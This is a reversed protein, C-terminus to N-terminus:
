GHRHVHGPEPTTGCEPCIGMAEISRRADDSNPEQGTDDEVDHKKPCQDTRHLASGCIACDM